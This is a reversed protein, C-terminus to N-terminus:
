TLKTLFRQRSAKVQEKRIGKELLVSNTNGGDDSKALYVIERESLVDIRQIQGTRTLRQLTQSVSNFSTTFLILTGGELEIYM